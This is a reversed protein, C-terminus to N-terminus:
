FVEALACGKSVVKYVNVRRRPDRVVEGDRRLRTLYIKLMGETYGTAAILEPITAKGKKVAALVRLKETDDGHPTQAAIDDDFRHVTINM